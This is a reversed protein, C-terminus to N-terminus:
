ALTITRQFNVLIATASVAKGIEQDIYASTTPATTTVAGPTTGSLYYTAGLTLGSLQNNINSYYVTANGGSTVSALVFGDAKKANGGSADAKRVKITGADNFTNVFDGAALAEFAVITEVELNFGLPMVSLDLRGTSDLSIIDGDNTAGTSVVTAQVEQIQGSLNKLYKKAAM